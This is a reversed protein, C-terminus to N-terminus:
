RYWSALVGVVLLLGLATLVGGIRVSEGAGIMMAGILAATTGVLLVVVKVVADPILNFLGQFALDFIEDLM